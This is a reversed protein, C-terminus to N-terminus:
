HDCLFLLYLIKNIVIDARQIRYELLRLNNGDIIWEGSECLNDHIIKYEDPDPHAWNPKWFYKDLHFVPINLIRHLKQSLTSKGSGANGVIAIKKPNKM